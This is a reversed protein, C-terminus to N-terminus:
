KQNQCIVIDDLTPGFGLHTVEPIIDLLEQLKTNDLYNAFNLFIYDPNLVFKMREYQQLSFTAVRRIRKTNTTYEPTLGLEEWTKERSDEYFPGSYGVEKNDIKLNGVRIPYTRISVIVNGLYKPHLGLDSLAQSVTIDRSTCYPYALGHNLSLDLGQSTEMLFILNQKLYYEFDIKQVYKKLIPNNKALGSERNIKRSLAHGVGNQTSSLKVCSGTHEATIDEEEIVAARPHIMLRDDSINCQNLEQLLIKPNIISGACLYIVSRKNIIASAPLHKVVYKRGGWYFTHGANPSGNSICVDIHNNAAVYSALVGKGTSGFQGDIIVTM